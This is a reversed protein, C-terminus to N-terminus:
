PFHFTAAKGIRRIRCVSIAWIPWRYANECLDSINENELFIPNDPHMM